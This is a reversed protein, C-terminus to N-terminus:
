KTMAGIFDFGYHNNEFNKMHNEDYGKSRGDALPAHLESIIPGFREKLMEFGSHYMQALNFCEDGIAVMVQPVSGGATSESIARQKPLIM